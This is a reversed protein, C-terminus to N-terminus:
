RPGASGKSSRTKSSEFCNPSCRSLSIGLRMWSCPGTNRSNSSARNAQRAHEPSREKRMASSNQNSFTKPSPPVISACLPTFGGPARTIFAQAFLEKGTGSEGTILVPFQTAAAKLAEKRLSQIVESEGVISELTHRTSRISMLEQEYLELKSELLSLKKALKTVDRVDKFMVQGFVAIVKGDKKIPIRQVVMKQGKILHSQNIESVGTKAVIHMRSNEVVETCHKGIQAGPDLGLFDGYPKNFHTVYGDADTVMTGNHISDFILKYIELQNQLELEHPSHKAEPGLDEGM